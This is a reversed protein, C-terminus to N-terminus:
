NMQIVRPESTVPGVDAAVGRDDTFRPLIWIAAAALVAALLVTRFFWRFGSPKKKTRFDPLDRSIRM